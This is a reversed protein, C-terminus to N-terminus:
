PLNHNFSPYVVVRSTPRPKHGMNLAINGGLTYTNAQHAYCFTVIIIVTKPLDARKNRSHNLNNATTEMM